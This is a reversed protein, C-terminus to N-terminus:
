PVVRIHAVPRAPRPLGAQACPAAAASSTTAYRRLTSEGHDNVPKRFAPVRLDLLANRVIDLAPAAPKDRHEVLALTCPIPPDLPRVVVDPMEPAIAADPVMSMGLGLGVVTKMAEVTGMHMPTHPLPLHEALWGMILKNVAGRGHELVLPHQAAYAPTVVDPIEPTGAPLIAVLNEPRLPTIRLRPDDVPLTVLGLDITNQIVGEVTDCTAMNTILLEIDPRDQRLRRLIPPLAYTLATLTTGIHVRGIWGQRFGRMAAEASECDRLIRRGHEVLARGPATAHTRGAIREVLQVGFRLELERIQLSVAPQTLNLQRAAASFSGLEIVETLTRLQDLNLSRM